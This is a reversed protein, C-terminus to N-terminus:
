WRWIAAACQWPSFVNWSEALLVARGMAAVTKPFGPYHVFLWFTSYFCEQSTSSCFYLNCKLSVFNILYLPNLSSPSSFLTTPLFSFLSLYFIKPANLSMFSKHFGYKASSDIPPSPCLSLSVILLILEFSPSFPTQWLTCVLCYDTLAPYGNYGIKM